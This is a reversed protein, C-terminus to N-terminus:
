RALEKAPLKGELARIVFPSFASLPTPLMRGYKDTHGAVTLRHFMWADASMTAVLGCHQCKYEVM